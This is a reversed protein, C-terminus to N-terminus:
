SSGVERDSLHSTRGSATEDEIETALTRSGIIASAGDPRGTLLLQAATLAVVATTVLFACLGAFWIGQPIILPINLSSMSRAGVSWSQAVVGSAYWTLITMFAGFLFLGAFDLAIRAPKPALMYLTDIRVHARKLLSYGLAWSSSIALTFGGLEDVGGISINFFKRILVEVAILLSIAVMLAGGAWVGIQSIRYTLHFLKLM